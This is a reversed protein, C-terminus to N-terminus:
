ASELTKSYFTNSVLHVEPAAHLACAHQQAAWETGKAGDPKSKTGTSTIRICLEALEVLNALVFCM